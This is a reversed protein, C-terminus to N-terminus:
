RGIKDCASAVLKELSGHKYETHTHKSQQRSWPGMALILCERYMAANRLQVAKKLMYFPNMFIAEVLLPSSDFAGRLGASFAPLACYYDALELAAHFASLSDVAFSWGYMARLLVHFAKMETDIWEIYQYEM